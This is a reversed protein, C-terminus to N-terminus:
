ANAAFGLAAPQYAPRPIPIGEERATEIWLTRAVALEQLAEEPSDGFAYCHPLDPIDAIWSRDEASWFINITYNVDM